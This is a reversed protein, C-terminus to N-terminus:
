RFDEQILDANIGIAARSGEGAAIVAQAPAIMSADGAAYVGVVSSRGLRDTAIGGQENLVCGLENGFPSAQRWSPSVFGGRRVVEEGGAFRVARLQGEEGLMDTIKKKTVVIGKKWLLKLESMTLPEAGNTCLMLDQSWQYALRTLPFAGAGDAIIILPRDHMEWGDCYPCSFLSTGYFAGLNPVRPLTEKLGGALLLKRAQVSFGGSTALRFGGEEATIEEVKDRKLVVSPYSKIDQWALKRFQEPTVGDRTIFGHTHKTVANRPKSDDFVIVSRRARGLLLAANLGAPGGGVIACDVKM